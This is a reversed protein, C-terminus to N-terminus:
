RSARAGKPKSAATQAGGHRAFFSLIRVIRDLNQSPPGLMSMISLHSGGPYRVYEVERRLWKLGAYLEDAQGPPCRLDGEHVHLFVPTRAQALYTLPSHALLHERRSFPDAAMADEFYDVGDWTGFQSLTDVVPAGIAAARFRNTHGIAWSSMFGGYSYGNVFQRQPDGLGAELADDVCAMLDEFDSGGWDGRVMSTFQEGYSTSGRPNPLLVVYGAGALVQYNVLMEPMPNHLHPGGHVELVLPPRGRPRRPPAMVFYEIEIGDSARVSRRTTGVLEVAECLATGATSIRVPATPTAGLDLTFIESPRDVWAAAYALRRRRGGHGAVVASVQEEEALVERANPEGLRARRIGVTGGDAVTFILERESLWSFPRAAFSFATPRDLAPAIREPEGSGDAPVVLLRSDRGAIRDAGLLGSCAVFRGDPSYSPSSGAGINASLLRPRGGRAPVVWLDSKTEDDRRPSRHSFFAIAEGDPSWTPHAHDYEGSTIRSLGAGATEYVFLHTRGAFWGVGDLRNHLGRVVLPANAAQPEPLESAPVVRVVLVLRDGTPSWEYWGVAGPAEVTVPSGGDLPALKLCPQGNGASIFALHRGDPSFRPFVDHPGGSFRRPEDSGDAAGVMIESVPQDAEVDLGTECWAVEGGGPSLDPDNAWRFLRLDDPRM